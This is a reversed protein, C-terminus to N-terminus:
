KLIARVTAPDKLPLYHDGGSVLVRVRGSDDALVTGAKPATDPLDIGFLGPLLRASAWPILQDERSLVLDLRIGSARLAQADAATFDLRSTDNARRVMAEQWGPHRAADRAEAALRRRTGELEPAWPISLHKQLLDSAPQASLALAGDRQVKWWFAYAEAQGILLPNLRAAARWQEVVFDGADLWSVLMRIRRAMEAYEPGAVTESDGFHTTPAFMVVRGGQLAAMARDVEPEGRLQFMRQFVLAAYSHLALEVRGGPSREAAVLIMRALDRADADFLNRTPSWASPALGRLSLAYDARDSPGSEFYTQFSDPLTMGGVFVRAPGAEQSPRRLGYGLVAGDSARLSRQEFGAPLAAPVVASVVGKGAFGDFMVAASASARAPSPGQAAEAFRAAFGSLAAAVPAAAQPASPAPLAPAAFRPAAPAFLPVAPLVPLVLVPATRIQAAVPSVALLLVLRRVMTMM